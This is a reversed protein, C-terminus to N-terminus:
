PTPVLRQLEDFWNLVLQLTRETVATEDVMVFRGDPAVDYNASAANQTVDRLSLTDTPDSPM